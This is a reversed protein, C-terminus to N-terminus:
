MSYWGVLTVTTVAVVIGCATGLILKLRLSWHRM